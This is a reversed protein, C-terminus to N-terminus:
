RRREPRRAPAKAFAPVRKLVPFMRALVSADRPLIADVKEPPMQSLKRALTDIVTAAQNKSLATSTTLEVNLIQACVGRAQDKEDAGFHYVQSLVTWIATLQGGKRAAVVMLCLVIIFYPHKLSFTPM